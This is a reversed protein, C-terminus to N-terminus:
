GIRIFGAVKKGVRCVMLEPWSGRGAANWGQEERRCGPLKM